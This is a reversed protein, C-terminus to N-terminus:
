RPVGEFIPILYSDWVAYQVGLTVLLVVLPVSARVWWPTRRWLLAMVLMSLGTLIGPAALAATQHYLPWCGSYTCGDDPGTFYFHISNVLLSEGGVVVGGVGQAVAARATGRASRLRGPRPLGAYLLAVVAAILVAVATGAGLPNGDRTIGASGQSPDVQALQQGLVVMVLLLPVSGVGALVLGGIEARDRRLVVRDDTREATM